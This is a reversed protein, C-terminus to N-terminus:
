WINITHLMRTTTITSSTKTKQEKKAIWINSRFIGFVVFPLFLKYQWKSLIEQVNFWGDYTRRHEVYLKLKRAVILVWFQQRDAKRLNFRKWRFVQVYKSYEGLLKRKEKTAWFVLSRDFKKSIQSEHWTWMM